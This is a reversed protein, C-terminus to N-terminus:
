YIGRHSADTNKRKKKTHKCKLDRHVQSFPIENIVDTVHFGDTLQTDEIHAYYLKQYLCSRRPAQKTHAGRPTNSASSRRKHAQIGQRATLVRRGGKDVRGHMTFTPLISSNTDQDGNLRKM